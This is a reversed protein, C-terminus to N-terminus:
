PTFFPRLFRGLAMLALHFGSLFLFGHGRSFDMFLEQRVSETIKNCHSWLYQLKHRFHWVGYGIGGLLIGWLIGLVIGWWQGITVLALGITIALMILWIFTIALVYSHSWRGLVITGYAPALLWSLAVFYLPLKPQSVVIGMVFFITGSWTMWALPYRRRKFPNGYPITKILEDRFVAVTKVPATGDPNVSSTGTSHSTSHSKKPESPLIELWEAISSSREETRLRMGEIIADLTRKQVQDKLDDQPRFLNHNNIRKNTKPPNKGTLSYYLIGALAYVDVTEKANGSDQEPPAYYENAFHNYTGTQMAIMAALGFDTIVPSNDKRLLINGPHIDRHVKNKQHLYILGDAIQRTIELAQTEDFPNNRAIQELTSNPIYEEVLCEIPKGNVIETFSDLLQIINPHNLEKLIKIENQFKTLLDQYIPLSALEALPTKIIAYTHDQHQALYIQKTSGSPLIAKITYKGKNITDGPQWTM